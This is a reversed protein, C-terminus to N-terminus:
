KKPLLIRLNVPFHDTFSFGVLGDIARQHRLRHPFACLNQRHMSTFILGGRIEILSGYPLRPTHVWVLKSAVISTNLSEAM